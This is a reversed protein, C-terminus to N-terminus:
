DNKEGLAKRALGGNGDCYEKGDKSTIFGQFPHYNEKNAYFSLAERMKVNESITEKLIHSAEKAEERLRECEEILAPMAHRATCIFELDFDNVSDRSDVITDKGSKIEHTLDIWPEKTTKAILKKWEALQEPTIM